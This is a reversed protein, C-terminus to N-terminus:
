GAGLPSNRLEDNIRATEDDFPTQTAELQAALNNGFAAFEARLKELEPLTLKARWTKCEDDKWWARLDDPNANGRMSKEVALYDASPVFPKEKAPESHIEGEGKEGYDADDKDGTPILLLSRMFQKLAYSQASGYAQAGNRLVEVSRSVAPLSQGSTHYVTIAFSMRMWSSEGYKGKRMFDETGTEQIHFILGADACIPGISSLFDDISAFSYNDHTNKGERAIRKVAGMAKAIATLVADVKIDTMTCEKSNSRPHDLIPSLRDNLAIWHKM